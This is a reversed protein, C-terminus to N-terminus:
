DLGRRLRMRRHAIGTDLFEEGEAVFGFGSYYGVLGAQAEIVLDGEWRRTYEISRALIEAGLGTGRAEPAVVFRGFCSGEATPFVRACGLLRGEGGRALVHRTEPHADTDDLENYPCDQEAVFVDVRLRFLEYAQPASLQELTSFEIM